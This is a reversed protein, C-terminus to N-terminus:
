KYQANKSIAMFGLYNSPCTTSELVSEPHERTIYDRSTPDVEGASCYNTPQERVHPFASIPEVLLSHAARPTLKDPTRSADVVYFHGTPILM